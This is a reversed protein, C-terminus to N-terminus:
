EDWTTWADYKKAGAEFGEEASTDVGKQVDGEINQISTAITMVPDMFLSVSKMTPKVYIQKM